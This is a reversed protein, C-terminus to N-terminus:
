TSGITLGPIPLRGGDTPANSRHLILLYQVATHGICTSDHADATVIQM